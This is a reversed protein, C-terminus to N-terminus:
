APNDLIDNSPVEPSKKLRPDRISAKSRDVHRIEKSGVNFMLQIRPDLSYTPAIVFTRRIREFNPKPVDVPVLKYQTIPFKGNSADIETAPTYQNIISKFPMRFSTQSDSDNGFSESLSDAGSLDQRQAQNLSADTQENCGTTEQKKEKPLISDPKKLQDLSTVISDFTNKDDEMEKVSPCETGADSPPPECGSDRNSEVDVGVREENYIGTSTENQSPKDGPISDYQKASVELDCDKVFSSGIESASSISADENLINLLEQDTLAPQDVPAALSADLAYFGSVDSNNIENQTPIEEGIETTYMSQKRQMEKFNGIKAMTDLDFGLELLSSAGLKFLEDMTEVGISALSTVQEPTLIEMLEGLKAFVEGSEQTKSVTKIVESLLTSSVPNSVGEEQTEISKEGVELLGEQEMQILENHRDEFNKELLIQPFCPFRQLLNAPASMVHHWLAQKMEPDLAPGHLLKCNNGDKCEYGFYYFKCPFESHMFSCNEARMCNDLYYYRCLKKQPEMESSNPDDPDNYARKLPSIESVLTTSENNVTNRELSEQESVKALESDDEPVAMVPDCDM